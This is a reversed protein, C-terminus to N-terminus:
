CFFMKFICRSTKISLVRVQIERAAKFLQRISLFTKQAIYASSDKAKTLPFDKINELQRLIQLKAGYVTVNYVTTMVTQKVVKRTIFGGLTKALENNQADKKRQEEVLDLVSSYVDQPRDSPYLNVSKAGDLDRGLAAYHQLGNCSGDQHIPFHSIYESPNKSKIANSIEICCALTQWKEELAFCFLQVNVFLFM